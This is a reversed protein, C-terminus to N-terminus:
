SFNKPVKGSLVIRCRVNPNIKSQKLNQIQTYTKPWEIPPARADNAAAHIALVAINEESFIRNM